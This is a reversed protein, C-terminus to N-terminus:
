QAKLSVKDVWEQMTAGTAGVDMQFQVGMNDTWGAPTPGSPLQTNFNTTSTGTSSDISVSDYWENGSSDRHFNWTLHYWSGPAFKPCSKGTDVWIHAGQNWIQWVGGSAFNCQTGFMYERGSIFQFADFELAQAYQATNADINLYFDFKFATDRNRPGVKYWWLGNTYAAANIYFLRSAGDVSPTTQNPATSIVGNSGGGACTVCSGWGVAGALGSDTATSDDVNNFTQAWSRASLVLVLYFVLKAM